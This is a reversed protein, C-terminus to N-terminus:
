AAVETKRPRGRHMEAWSEARKRNLGALMALGVRIAFARNDYREDALQIIEEPAEAIIQKPGTDLHQDKRTGMAYQRAESVEIGGAVALAVRLMGSKSTTLPLGSGMAASFLSDEPVTAAVFRDTM